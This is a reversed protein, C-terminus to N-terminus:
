PAVVWVITALKVWAPASLAIVLLLVALGILTWSMIEDPTGNLRNHIWVSIM